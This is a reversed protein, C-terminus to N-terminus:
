CWLCLFLAGCMKEIWFGDLNLYKEESLWSISIVFCLRCLVKLVSHTWGIVSSLGARKSWDSIFKPLSGGTKYM